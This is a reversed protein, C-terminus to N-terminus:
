SDLVKLIEEGVWNRGEAEPVSQSPLDRWGCAAAQEAIRKVHQLTAQYRMAQQALEFVKTDPYTSALASAMDDRLRATEEPSPIWADPYDSM